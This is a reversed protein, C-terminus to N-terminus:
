CDIKFIFNSLIVLRLKNKNSYIINDKNNNSFKNLINFM